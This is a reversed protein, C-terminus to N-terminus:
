RSTHVFNPRSARDLGRAGAITRHSITVKVYGVGRACAIGIHDNGSDDGRGDHQGAGGDEHGTDRRQTSTCQRRATWRAACEDPGTRMVGCTWHQKVKVSRM